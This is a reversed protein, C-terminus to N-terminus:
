CRKTRFLGRLADIGGEEARRCRDELQKVRQENSATSRQLVAPRCGGAAATM